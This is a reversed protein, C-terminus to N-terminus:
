EGDFTLAVTGQQNCNNITQAFSTLSWGVNVLHLLVYKSPRVNRWPLLLLSVQSFPLFPLSAQSSSWRSLHLTEKDSSPQLPFLPCTSPHHANIYKPPLSFLWRIAFPIRYPLGFPLPDGGYPRGLSVGYSHLGALWYKCLCVRRLIADCITQQLLQDAARRTSTHIM